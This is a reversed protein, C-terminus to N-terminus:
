FIKLKKKNLKELKKRYNEENVRKIFKTISQIVVSELKM